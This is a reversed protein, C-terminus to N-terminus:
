QTGERLTKNRVKMAYMEKDAIKFLTDIDASDHPYVSMGISFRINIQFKNCVIESGIQELIKKKLADADAHSSVHFLGVFEDGGFRAIIDEQRLSKKLDRAVRKLVHDGAEHGYTDNIQKFGDLDIYVLVLTWDMRAAEAMSHTLHELFLSRNALGTLPDHDAVHKLKGQLAKLDSIDRNSGRVGINEGASNFVTRCVHHIWKTEGDRSRIKFELPEVKGNKAMTHRHEKWQQWDDPIIIEQLLNPDQYFDKPTYGTISECSPSVHKYNGAADQWYEWDYAFESIVFLAEEQSLFSEEIVRLKEIMTQLESITSQVESKHIEFPKMKDTGQDTKENAVPIAAM